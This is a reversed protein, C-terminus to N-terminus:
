KSFAAIDGRGGCTQTARVYRRLADAECRPLGNGYGDRGWHVAEWVRM